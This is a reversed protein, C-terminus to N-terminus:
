PKPSSKAAQRELEANLEGGILVSLSTLFMWLILVVVGAMTGYTEGYSSFNEVYVAFAASTALWLVAGLVGGASVWTWRPSDRNPGLYYFLSFLVMVAAVTLAWGLVIFVTSDGFTFLPSPVGGLLGTAIILAFAVLRAKVFKREERIDYAVDLGKQLAVFASSASWLAVAIGILAAMLSSSDDQENANDIANGVIDSAGEPLSDQMSQQIDAITSDPVQLLGLVGIAAIVAPFLALFGYYAMGAAVLTVRDNKIEKLTRKATAKWDLPDLDLPSDPGPVDGSQVPIGGGDRPKSRVAERRSRDPREPSRHRRPAPATRPPLAETAPRTRGLRRAKLGDLVFKFTLIRAILKIM